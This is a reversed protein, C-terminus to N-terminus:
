DKHQMQYFTTEKCLLKQLSLCDEDNETVAESLKQIAQLQRNNILSLTRVRHFGRQEAAACVGEELYIKRNHVTEDAQLLSMIERYSSCHDLRFILQGGPNLMGSLGSFVIDLDDPYCDLSQEMFILDFGGPLNEPLTSFNQFVCCDKCITQLDKRYKEETVAASVAPRIGFKNWLANKIQLLTAGCKVDIGLISHVQSLQEYSFNKYIPNMRADAWADLGYKQFFIEKGEQFSNNQHDQATTLSGYHHTVTDACYILRYGARRIRFSIDDDAFEGRYFRTDYYGIRRLLATPCCLVNPLLVVREEWKRPDSVNFKEAERQFSEISTFPISIQQFNSISTAGPSAYGIQPDSEMCLLLNHLWNKTFIFDNCVAASYKGEAAMLGINFGKVVHLNHKLHIVKAGEVSDFFTRTGDTSGNDVLILEYNIGETNEQISKVCERVYSLNNYALLIVSALYKANEGERLIEQPDIEASDPYFAPYEGHDVSDEALYAIEFKLLKFLAKLHYRLDFAFAAADQREGNLKAISDYLNLSIEKVRNLAPEDRTRTDIERTLNALQELLAADATGGDEELGNKCRLLIEDGACLLELLEKATNLEM